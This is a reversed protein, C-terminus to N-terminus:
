RRCARSRVTPTGFSIPKTACPMATTRRCWKPRRAITDPDCFEHRNRASGVKTIEPPGFRRSNLHREGHDGSRSVGSVPISSSRPACRPMLGRRMPSDPADRRSSRRWFGVGFPRNWPAEETIRNQAFKELVPQSCPVRTSWFCLDVEPKPTDADGLDWFLGAM